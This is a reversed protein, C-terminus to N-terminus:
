GLSSALSSSALFHEMVTDWTPSGRCIGGGGGCVGGACLRIHRAIDRRWHGMCGPSAIVAWLQRARWSSHLIMYLLNEWGLGQPGGSPGGKQDWGAGLWVTWTKSREWNGPLGSLAFRPIYPTGRLSPQCLRIYLSVGEIELKMCNQQFVRHQDLKSKGGSLACTWFSSTWRVADGASCGWGSRLGGYQAGSTKPYHKGVVWRLPPNLSNPTTKSIGEYEQTCPPPSVIDYDSNKRLPEAPVVLPEIYVSRTRPM